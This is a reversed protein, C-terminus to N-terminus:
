SFKSYKFELYNYEDNNCVFLCCQFKILLIEFLYKWFLWVQVSHLLTLDM